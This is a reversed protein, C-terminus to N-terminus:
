KAATSERLPVPVLSKLQKGSAVEYVEVRGARTGIAVRTGKEDLAVSYVPATLKGVVPLKQQTALTFLRVEAFRGAVALTKRDGSLAIDLVEGPATDVARVYQERRSVPRAGNGAGSVEVSQLAVALQYAAVARTLGGSVAFADDSVVSNIRELSTDITRLLEGTKVLAVKTTKDRGATVVKTGDPTWAVDVVWDSHLEFRRVEAKLM